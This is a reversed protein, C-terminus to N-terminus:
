KQAYADFFFVIQSSEGIQKFNLLCYHVYKFISLLLTHLMEMPCAGHIGRNNHSGLRIKHLSNLIDQQSLLRLSEKDGADVLM